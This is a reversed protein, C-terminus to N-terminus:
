EKENSQNILLYYDRNSERFDCFLYLDCVRKFYSGIHVSMNHHRGVLYGKILLSIIDTVKGVTM